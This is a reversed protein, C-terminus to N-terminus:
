KACPGLWEFHMTDCRTRYDGGWRFGNNRFANVIENPIDTECDKGAIRKENPNKNPNIDIAIGFSHLSQSSPNNVNSRWNFTGSANDTIKYTINSPIAAIVSNFASQAKRHVRLKKGLINVTVLQSEVESASSGFQSYFCEMGKTQGTLVAESSEQLPKGEINAIKLDDFGVLQPNIIFLMTYSGAVLVLGIIADKITEKAKNISEASGAAALWQMGGWGLYVVAIVGIVGILWNFLVGIYRSLLAGDVSIGQGENVTFVGGGIKITGPITVQPVFYLPKNKEIETPPINGLNDNVGQIAYFEGIHSCATVQSCAKDQFYGFTNEDGTCQDFRTIDDCALITGGSKAIKVCCSPENLVPCQNTDCSHSFKPYGPEFGNPASNYCKSECDTVSFADGRCDRLTTNGMFGPPKCECCGAQSSIPLFFLILLFATSVLIKIKYFSM